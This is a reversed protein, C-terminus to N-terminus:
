VNRNPNLSSIHEVGEGLVITVENQNHRFNPLPPPSGGYIM